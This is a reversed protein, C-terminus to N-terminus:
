GQSFNVTELLVVMRSKWARDITKYVRRTGGGTRFGCKWLLVPAAAHRAVMTALIGRDFRKDNQWRRSRDRTSIRPGKVVNCHARDIPMIWSRCRETVERRSRSKWGKSSQTEVHFTIDANLAEIMHARYDSFIRFWSQRRITVLLLVFTRYLRATNFIVRSM